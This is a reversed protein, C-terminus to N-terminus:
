YLRHLTQSFGQPFLALLQGSLEYRALLHTDQTQWMYSLACVLNKWINELTENHFCSKVLYRIDTQKTKAKKM